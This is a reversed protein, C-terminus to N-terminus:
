SKNGPEIPIKFGIRTGSGLESEVFVTGGHLEVFFKVLYLGLGSGKNQGHSEDDGRYFKRWVNKLDEESIGPGTDRVEFQIVNDEAESTTIEVFGGQQTYKIANEVLNQIVERILVPDFEASFMPELNLSVSIGKDEALSNLDSAVNEVIMNIDSPSYNVKFDAAEVRSVQLISQIYRNLELGSQKLIQIDKALNPDYAGSRLMRETTAQIKAIPTKLDHSFLSVFNQKLAELELLSQHDKQLRWARQENMNSQFGLFLM